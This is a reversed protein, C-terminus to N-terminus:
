RIDLGRPAAPESNLSWIAGSGAHWGSGPWGDARLARLAQMRRRRRSDRPTVEAKSRSMRPFRIPGPIARTRTSSRCTRARRAAASSRSRSGSRAGTGSVRASTPMSTARSRRDVAVIANSDAAVPLRDVRQNWANTAPFVPCGLSAPRRAAGTAAGALTAAVLGLVIFRMRVDAVDTLRDSPAVGMRPM